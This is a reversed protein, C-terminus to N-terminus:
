TKKQGKSRREMEEELSALQAELERLDAQTRADLEEESLDEEASVEITDHPELGDDWAGEGTVEARGPREWAPTATLPGEEDELTEAADADTEIGAIEGPGEDWDVAPTEGWEGPEEWAGEDEPWRGEEDAWSPAARPVSEFEMLEEEEEPVDAEFGALDVREFAVVEDLPEEEEEDLLSLGGVPEAGELRAVRDELAAREAALSDREARLREAESAPITGGLPPGGREARVRGQPNLRDIISRLTEIDQSPHQVGESESLTDLVKRLNPDVKPM